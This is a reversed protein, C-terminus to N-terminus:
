ISENLKKLKFFSLKDSKEEKITKITETIKNKIDNDNETTLITQLKEITTEQLTKFSNNLEDDSLHIINMLEKKDSEELKEIFTSFTKNAIQLMSSIPLQVKPEITVSKSKLTEVISEKSKVKNVVDLVNNSMVTDIDRYQNECTVNTVWTMIEKIDKKTLNLSEYLKVCENVFEKAVSETLEKNESLECYLHYAKAIKKNELVKEKFNKMEYKFSGKQFSDVLHKEIKSKLQGFKIM